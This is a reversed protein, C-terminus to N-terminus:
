AALLLLRDRALGAEACAAPDDLTGEAPHGSPPAEHAVVLLADVDRVGHDEDGHAAIEDSSVSMGSKGFPSKPKKRALKVGDGCEGVFESTQSNPGREREM